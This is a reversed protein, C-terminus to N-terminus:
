LMIYNPYLYSPLLTSTFLASDFECNCFWGVDDVKSSPISPPHSAKLTTSHPDWSSKKTTSTSYFPSSPKLLARTTLWKNPSFSKTWDITWWSRGRHSRTRRLLAPILDSLFATRKRDTRGINVCALDRRYSTRCLPWGTQQGTPKNTLRGVISRDYQRLQM